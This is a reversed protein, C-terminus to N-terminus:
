GQLGPDNLFDYLNEEARLNLKKRLRSRSIYSSSPQINLIDAIEKSNLGIKLYACLRLDHNSLGPFREKLKRFFGQHLEDMQIEFTKDDVDLYSALVRQMGALKQKALAPNDMAKECQEKLGLILRNKEENDRAKNALEITKYKILQKLRENELELKDQKLRQIERRHGATKERMAKKERILLERKQKKLSRLQWLRILRLFLFLLLACLVLAYWTRYWPAAIQFSVAAPGIIDGRNKAQVLMTHTGSRLGSLDFSNGSEWPSWDEQNDLRYRYLVNEQNAVAYGIRLNNFSYPIKAGPYAPMKEHNRFAEMKRLTLPPGYRVPVQGHNPFHFAFGNYVPYFVYSPCLAVPRCTGPLLGEPKLDPGSLEKQMFQRDTPQFVYEFTDTVVRIGNEQKLLCLHNGRFMAEPFIEREAPELDAGLLARIIGFNPINVWLTNENELILQNCSGRILEMKKVFSWAGGKKRFISIGNYNGTLLADRCPVITWVGERDNIKEVGNGLVEFLGKDHGMLVRNGINQLTWVQGETGPIIQLRFFERNNNLEEWPSHYLGQNTGLYFDDGALLATHGTGSDGRYDIFYTNNDLWNLSSIGYDMGLWLKGDRGYHLALVTNSPLGKQKNIHHVIQGDAGAVYLGKLVTGFAVYGDDIKAFSFVKAERLKESLANELRAFRGAGYQYLGKNRTVVVLGKENRYMGTIEMTQNRPYEFVKRLSFDEFVFLGEKEDSLYLSDSHLFSGTFRTPANIKVLQGGTQLYINRSSVFAIDEKVPYLHWFEESTEQAEERFPYM